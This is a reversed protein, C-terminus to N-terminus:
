KARPLERIIEEAQGPICLVGTGAQNQSAAKVEIIKSIDSFFRMGKVDIEMHARAEAMAPCELRKVRDQEFFGVPDQALALPFDM